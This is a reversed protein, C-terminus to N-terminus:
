RAEAAAALLNDALTLVAAELPMEVAAADPQAAWRTAIPDDRRSALRRDSPRQNEALEFAEEM